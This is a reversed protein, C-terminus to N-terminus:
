ETQRTDYATFNNPTAFQNYLLLFLSVRFFVTSFLVIMNLLYYKTSTM